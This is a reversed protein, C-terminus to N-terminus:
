RSCYSIKDEELNNELHYEHSIAGGHVGPDSVVQLPVKPINKTLAVVTRIELQLADKFIRRYASTVLSYTKQCSDVDVDFSYMDNM